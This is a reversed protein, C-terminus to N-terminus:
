GKIIKNEISSFSVSTINHPIPIFNEIKIQEWFNLDFWPLVKMNSELNVSTYPWNTMQNKDEYINAAWHHLCSSNQSRFNLLQYNQIQNEKGQYSAKM